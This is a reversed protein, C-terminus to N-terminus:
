IEEHLGGTDIRGLMYLFANLADQVFPLQEAYPQIMLYGRMLTLVRVQRTSFFDPALEIGSPYGKDSAYLLTNRRNQLQRLHTEVDVAGRQRVYSEISQRFSLPKGESHVSFNLPPMPYMLRIEGDVNVKVCHTLRREGDVERIHLMTESAHEGLLVAIVAGVADLFPVIANKQFHDRPKLQEANEYGREKLCHMLGSAAEEEATLGRFAAMAPDVQQIRHSMRLHHVASRFCHRSMRKPLGDLMSLCQEDFPRLPLEDTVGNV